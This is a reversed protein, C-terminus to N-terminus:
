WDGHSPFESLLACIVGDKIQKLSLSSPFYLSYGSREREEIEKRMGGGRETGIRAVLPARPLTLVHNYLPWVYIAIVVHKRWYNIEIILFCM